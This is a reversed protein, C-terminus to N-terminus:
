PNTSHPFDISAKPLGVEYKYTQQEEAQSAAFPLLAGLAAVLVTRLRM